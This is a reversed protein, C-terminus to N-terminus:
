GCFSIVGSGHVGAASALQYLRDCCELFRITQLSVSPASGIGPVCKEVLLLKKVLLGLRYRMLLLLGKPRPFLIDCVGQTDGSAQPM